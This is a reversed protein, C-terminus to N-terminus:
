SLHRRLWGRRWFFYFQISAILLMLVLCYEYGYKWGLEPMNYKSSRDFNMGYISAVVGIPMVINAL